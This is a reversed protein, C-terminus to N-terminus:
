FLGLQAPDHGRTNKSILQWGIRDSIGFQPCLVAMAQRISGGAAKHESVAAVFRANRLKRLVKACRPIYFQEAGLYSILKGLEEETLVERLKAHVGGTREQAMGSKGALSVGGFQNILTAAAGYGLVHILIKASEPLLAELEALESHNVTIKM